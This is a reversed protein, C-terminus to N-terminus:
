VGAPLMVLLCQIGRSCLGEAKHGRHPDEMKHTESIMDPVWFQDDLECCLRLRIPVQKELGRTTLM